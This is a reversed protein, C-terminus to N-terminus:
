RIAASTGVTCYGHKDPPSLQLIAADLAIRGSQFLAPIDSLFIPTFDARGEEVPKRLGPGTFLSISRFQSACEPEAFACRGELHLHFLRVNELDKRAVLADLLPTPTAAAGHVFVRAGSAVLSVVEEARRARRQWDAFARVIM